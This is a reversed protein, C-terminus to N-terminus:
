RPSKNRKRSKERVDEEKRESVFLSALQEKRRTWWLNRRDKVKEEKEEEEKEVEKRNTKKQVRWREVPAEITRPDKRQCHIKSSEEVTRPDEGQSNREQTSPTGERVTEKMPEQTRERATKPKRCWIEKRMGPLDDQRDPHVERAIGKHRIKRCKRRGFLLVILGQIFGGPTPLAM